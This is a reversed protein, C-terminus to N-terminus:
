KLRRQRLEREFSTQYHDVNQWLSQIRAFLAEDLALSKTTTAEIILRDFTQRSKLIAENLLELAVVLDNSDKPATLARRVEIIYKTKIRAVLDDVLELRVRLRADNQPQTRSRIERLLEEAVKPYNRECDTLVESLPLFIIPSGRGIVVFSFILLLLCLLPMTKQRVNLSSHVRDCAALSRRFRSVNSNNTPFQAGSIQTASVFLPRGALVRSRKAGDRSCRGNIIRAISNM